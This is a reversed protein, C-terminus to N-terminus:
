LKIEVSNKFNKVNNPDDLKVHIEEISHLIREAEKATEIENETLESFVEDNENPVRKILMAERALQDFMKEAKKLAKAESAKKKM